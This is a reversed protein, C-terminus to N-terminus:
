PLRRFLGTSIFKAPVVACGRPCHGGGQRKLNSMRDLPLNRGAAINRAAM